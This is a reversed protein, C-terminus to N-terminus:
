TNNFLRSNEDGVRPEAWSLSQFSIFHFPCGLVLLPSELLLLLLLVRLRLLFGFFSVQLEKTKFGRELRLLEEGLRVICIHIYTRIHSYTTAYNLVIAACSCKYPDFRLARVFSPRVICLFSPPYKQAAM